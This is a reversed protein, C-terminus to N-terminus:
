PREPESVSRPHEQLPATQRTQENAAEEARHPTRQRMKLSARVEDDLLRFCRMPAGCLLPRSEAGGCAGSVPGPAGDAPCFLTYM